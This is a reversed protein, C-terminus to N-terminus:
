CAKIIKKTTEIDNRSPNPDGSPHNHVLILSSARLEKARGAIEVPYVSTYDTTGEQRIEDMIIRNKKDLFIVRFEELKKEGMAIRCYKLLSDWSGIVPKEQLKRHLACIMSAEIIKIEAACAKSVGKVEMLRAPEAGIVGAFDGFRILLEKAIPKVDARPIARFLILELLEYDHLAGMGAKLFKERLRQRHGANYDKPKDTMITFPKRIIAYIDGRRGQM